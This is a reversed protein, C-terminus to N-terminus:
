PRVEWAAYVCRRSSDFSDYLRGDVVAAVHHAMRLIFSGQPHTKCFQVGSMRPEGRVAPFAFARIVHLRHDFSALEETLGFSCRQSEGQMRYLLNWADLYDLGLAVVLSRVQCDNKDSGRHGIGVDRKVFCSM